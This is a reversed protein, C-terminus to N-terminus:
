KLANEVGGGMMEIFKGFLFGTDGPAGTKEPYFQVGLAPISKYYIGENTNDNVNVFIEKAIRKDISGSDVAYGQNQSTIYVKGNSVDRVPQSAGRHGYTLKYTSFGKALALLQHGLGIGMIPIKKSALKKLNEIIETNEAPNGPGNTLFIGDPEASLIDEASTNAPFVNVNLGCSLLAPLINEDRGLDLMAVNLKTGKSTYKEPAKSTVSSVPKKLKFSKIKKLDANKPNDTIMGNMTGQERLLKTLARTDIGCLGPIGKNKLYADINEESRFNSPHECWERVIYASLHPSAGQRNPEIVGYNGIIPFTQVLIQGKYAPDTLGEVYGGMVTTFVVEGTAEGKAGFGEGEWISGNELILYRKM